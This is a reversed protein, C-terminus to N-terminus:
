ERYTDYIEVIKAVDAPIYDQGYSLPSIVYDMNYYEKDLTNICEDLSDFERVYGARPWDSTKFIWFKM